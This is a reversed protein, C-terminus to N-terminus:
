SGVKQVKKIQTMNYPWKGFLGDWEIVTYNEAVEVVTGFAGEFDFVEFRQVRDGVKM